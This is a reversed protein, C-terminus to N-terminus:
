KRLDKPAPLKIHGWWYPDWTTNENFDLATAVEFTVATPIHDYFSVNGLEDTQYLSPTLCYKGPVVQSIDLELPVTM